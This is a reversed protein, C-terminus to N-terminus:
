LALSAVGVVVSVVGGIVRGFATVPVMDGYGVTTLTEIAWWMGAPISSFENPQADGEIMYMLSGSITLTSPNKTINDTSSSGTDDAAALDLGTPAAPATTDVTIDLATSNGSVNGAVDTQYAVVHHLGEALTTDLQTDRPLIESYLTALTLDDFTLGINNYATFFADAPKYFRSDFSDSEKSAAMDSFAQSRVGKALKFSLANLNHAFGM